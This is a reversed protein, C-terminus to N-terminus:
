NKYGPDLYFIKTVIEEVSGIEYGVARMFHESIGRLDIGVICPHNEDITKYLHSLMLKKVEM